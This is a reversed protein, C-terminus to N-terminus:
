KRRRLAAPLSTALVLLACLSLVIDLFRKVFKRYM